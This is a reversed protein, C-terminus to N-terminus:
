LLFSPNHDSYDNEETEIRQSSISPHVFFYDFVYPKYGNKQRSSTEATTLNIYITPQQPAVIRSPEYHSLERYDINFDGGIVYPMPLARAYDFIQRLQLKVIPDYDAHDCSQLHTNIFCTNGTPLQIVCALFGKDSLVEPTYPTNSQFRIFEHSIIPYQSMTVLGSNVLRISTMKGRVIYYDPFVTPLPISTLHNFMEQFLLIPYNRTQQRLLSMSKSKWPLYQINYTMIGFTQPIIPAKPVFYEYSTKELWIFYIILIVLGVIISKAVNVM